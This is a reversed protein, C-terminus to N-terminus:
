AYAGPRIIAKMTKQGTVAEMAQPIQDLGFIQPALIDVNVTGNSLHEMAEVLEAPSPSYSSYVTIERHYLENVDYTVKSGPELGAFISLLGGDRVYCISDGYVAQNGATLVLLDAKRGETKEALFDNLRPDSPAFAGDFGAKLAKAIRDERLDTGIVNCSFAKAIQGTLLGMSGLGIVMVTDGPQLRARKVNRIVCALPEMFIAQDYSLGDPIKHATMEVHGAPIRVFEAFGGPDLNSEKFTRCMSFSEHRCYHCAYCPTHHAVAVRDGIRFKRVEDGVAAVMGAIEHGLIAPPKVLSRHVKHIDTGCVGCAAVRLLVDGSQLTPKPTERAEVVHQDIYVAARM